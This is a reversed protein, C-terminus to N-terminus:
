RYLMWYVMVGTVSVYLWIPLTLRAIKVHQTFQSRFARYLTTGVLVPVLAALITHSILIIFYFIRVAGQGPFRSAGHFYHYTLYSVLFLTSTACASLMCIKHREIAKKRISVYGLVLLVVSTANLSANIAPLSSISIM